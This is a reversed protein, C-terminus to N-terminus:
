LQHQASAFCRRHCRRIAHLIVYGRTPWSVRSGGNADWVPANRRRRWRALCLRRQGFVREATVHEQEPAPAAVHSLHPLPAGIAQAQQCLPELTTGEDPRLSLPLTAKVCACRDINSSSWNNPWKRAWHACATLRANEPLNGPSRSNGLNRKRAAASKARSIKGQEM